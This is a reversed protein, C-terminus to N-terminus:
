RTGTTNTPAAASRDNTAGEVRGTRLEGVVMAGRGGAGLSPRRRTRERLTRARGFTGTAITASMVTWTTITRIMVIVGSCM